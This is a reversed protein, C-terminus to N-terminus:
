WQRDRSSNRLAMLSVLKRLEPEVSKCWMPWPLPRANACVPMSRRGTGGSVQVASTEANDDLEVLVDVAQALILVIVVGVWDSDDALATKDIVIVGAVEVVPDEGEGLDSVAEVLQALRTMEVELDLGTGM